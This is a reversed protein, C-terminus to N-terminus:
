LRSPFVTRDAAKIIELIELLNEKTPPGGLRTQCMEQFLQTKYEYKLHQHTTLPAYGPKGTIFKRSNQCNDVGYRFTNLSISKRAKRKEPDDDIFNSLFTETWCFAEEYDVIDSVEVDFGAFLLFAKAINQPSYPLDDVLESDIAYAESDENKSEVTIGSSLSNVLSQNLVSRLASVKKLQSKM